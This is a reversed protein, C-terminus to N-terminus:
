KWFDRSELLFGDTISVARVKDGLVAHPLESRKLLIETSKGRQQGGELAGWGERM